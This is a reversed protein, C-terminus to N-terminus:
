PPNTPSHFAAGDVAHRFFAVREVELHERRDHDADRHAGEPRVEASRQFRQAVPEDLEHLHQGRRNNERRHDHSITGPVEDESVASGPSM